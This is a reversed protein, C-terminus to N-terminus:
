KGMKAYEAEYEQIIKDGGMSRWKQIEAQYGAEDINGMVFKIMADTMLQDLEGGRESYTPSTLTLAPNPVTYKTNDEAIKQAKEAIPTDQLPLIKYGEMNLLMDRYPKVERQFLDFDLWKHKGDATEEYHKNLIGRRQLTNMDEDLLKDFFTLIKLLDEETKVKSKPFVFFGNNGLEGSVRIGMPGTLPEVDFVANPDTQLVRSQMSGANQAVAVRLGARSADFIKLVESEDVAAFDQNIAGEQYLKRFMKLVELHVPHEFEPTFKGNEDVAWKNPAGLSVALRTSAAASGSFFNKHLLFGYTNNQGDGDPDDSVMARAVNYYEDVTKPVNMGLKELWDKRFILAARGIDRYQPIGYLKGDVKINEYYQPNQASLNPFQDLYPGIEWFLGSQISSIIAPTYTVRMAMPMEDAAIMVNIKDAYASGPIWQIDLTTNTYEQIALQIESDQPPIEDVQSVALTIHFPKEDAPAAQQGNGAQNSTSNQQQSQKSSQDNQNNSSGSSCAAITGVTLILVCILSLWKSSRM